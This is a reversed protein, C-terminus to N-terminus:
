MFNGRLTWVTPKLTVVLSTGRSQLKTKQTETEEDMLHVYSHRCWVVIFIILYSLVYVYLSM